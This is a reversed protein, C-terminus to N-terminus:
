DLPRNMKLRMDAAEKLWNLLEDSQGAALMEDLKQLQSGLQRIGQRIQDANDILIDRWLGPDGAAIRTTDAFGKGALEMSRGDQIAMLAAAIAHPLHSVMAIRQDHEDPSMRIVKMGMDRWLQEVTQLPAPHTQDTPTTICVAGSFLDSKAFEVGRKESGAMPHSGVFHASNPWLKEASKVVSRKTSGVDTVIAGPKLVPSIERLLSDFLGVPTCLVVL